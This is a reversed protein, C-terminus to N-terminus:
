GQQLSLIGDAMTQSSCCRWCHSAQTITITPRRAQKFEANFLVDVDVFAGIVQATGSIAGAVVGSNNTIARYETAGPTVTLMSDAM